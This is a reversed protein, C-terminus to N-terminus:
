VSQDFFKLADAAAVEIEREFDFGKYSMILNHPAFPTEHFKIQNGNVKEMEAAFEQISDYLAEVTGANIWLPISTRFPHQLPSIYALEEATPPESPYYAEAGWQLLSPMLMDNEANRMAVYDAGAQLSVSVWPSWVMAARPSPLKSTELYRVLGLVLNGGASDGSIILNKPSVGLSLIYHYFTVLDQLAAPFRSSDDAAPRYQAYFVRTAGFHQLLAKSVPEGYYEQGFAMVFAGGPFHLVVKEDALNPAGEFLPAPYWLGGVEAPRVAGPSLAGSYYSSDAPKALALREGAKKHDSLVDSMGSSRTRATYLMMQKIVKCVICIKLSWEPFPRAQKFSYRVTLWPLLACMKAALYSTYLAKWPQKSWIPAMIHDTLQTTQFYPIIIQHSTPM